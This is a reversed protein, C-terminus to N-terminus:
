MIDGECLRVDCNPNIIVYSFTNNRNALSDDTSLNPLNTLKGPAEFQDLKISHVKLSSVM